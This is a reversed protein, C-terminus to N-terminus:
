GVTKSDSNELEDVEVQSQVLKAGLCAFIFSQSKIFTAMPGDIQMGAQQMHEISHETLMEIALTFDQNEEIASLLIDNIRRIPAVRIQEVIGQAVENSVKVM